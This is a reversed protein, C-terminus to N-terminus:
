EQLLLIIGLIGLCLTFCALQPSQADESECLSVFHECNSHFLSYPFGAKLIRYANQISLQPNKAMREYKIQLNDSFVALTTIQAGFGPRAHAVHGNGLYIGVHRGIPFKSCSIIAGQHLNIM